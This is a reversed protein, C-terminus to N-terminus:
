AALARQPVRCPMYRRSLPMDADIAHTVDHRIDAAFQRTVREGAYACLADAALYYAGYVDRQAM